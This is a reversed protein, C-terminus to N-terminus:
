VKDFLDYFKLYRFIKDTSFKENESLIEKFSRNNFLIRRQGMYKPCESFIHKVSLQVHCQECLPVPNHPNCMLHGHTLRTHGIRLRTLVVENRRIIQSSSSWSQTTDKIEKLKNSNTFESWENQWKNVTIQKVYALYDEVPLTKVVLPLSIAEKAYSDVKENGDIGIHSPIWCFTVFIQRQKLTHLIFKIHSVIKNQSSYSKIAQLSSLSDSFITVNKLKRDSIVKLANKIALLEATFVSAKTPLAIQIKINSGYVALGVGEKNKSGDTYIHNSDHENIHELVYQRLACPNDQKKISLTCLKECFKPADMTWPPIENEFNYFRVDELNNDRFLRNARIPFSPSVKSSIFCDPKKFFDKTSSSSTKIKLARRMTTIQFKHSLPVEGSEVILSPVPSSKFAGTAIRLGLNHVPDLMKLVSKSASNFIPSGYELIPLITANYLKLLVDRSAGWTTHALKKVLNLAKLAKAKTQKVHAKWNMHSDFILGLFKIESYFRIPLNNMTLSIGQNRLWRKDRYFVM